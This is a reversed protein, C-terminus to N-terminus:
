PFMLVTTPTTETTKALDRLQPVMLMMLQLVMLMMLQLQLVMLMMLELQPVMLMMLELQPVMLIMLEAEMTKMTLPVKLPLVMPMMLLLAMPMMLLLVMPMELQLMMVPLLKKKDEEGALKSGVVDVETRNVDMVDLAITRFLDATAVEELVISVTLLSLPLSDQM